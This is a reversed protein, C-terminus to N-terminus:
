ESVDVRCRRFEETKNMGCKNGGREDNTIGYQDLFRSKSQAAHDIHISLFFFFFAESKQLVGVGRPHM